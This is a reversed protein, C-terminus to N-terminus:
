LNSPKLTNKGTEANICQNATSNEHGFVGDFTQYLRKMGQVITGSIDFLGTCLM